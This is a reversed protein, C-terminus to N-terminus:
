WGIWVSDVQAIFFIEEGKFNRGNCVVVRFVDFVLVLQLAQVFIPLTSGLSFKSSVGVDWTSFVLKFNPGGIIVSNCQALGM